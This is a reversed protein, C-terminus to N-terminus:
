VRTVSSDDKLLLTFISFGFLEEVALICQRKWISTSLSNLDSICKHLSYKIECFYQRKDSSISAKMQPKVASFLLLILLYKWNEISFKPSTCTKPPCLDEINPLFCTGSSIGEEYTYSLKHQLLCVSLPMALSSLTTQGPHWALLLHSSTHSCVYELSISWHHSPNKPLGM